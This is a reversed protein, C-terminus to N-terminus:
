PKIWIIKLLDYAISHQINSCFMEKLVKEGYQQKLVEEPNNPIKVYMDDKIEKKIPYILSEDWIEKENFKLENKNWNEIKRINKDVKTVFFIDMVPNDHEKLKVRIGGKYFTQEPTMGLLFLLEMGNDKFKNINTMNFFKDKNKLDTHVDIDDDWPMFTGHRTFGLLTGGSLWAEIDLEEMTRTAKQFLKRLLLLFEEDLMMGVGKLPLDPVVYTRKGVHYELKPEVYTKTRSKSIEMKYLSIM